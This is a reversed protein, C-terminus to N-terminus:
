FALYFDGALIHFAPSCKGTLNRLTLADHILLMPWCKLALLLWPTRM